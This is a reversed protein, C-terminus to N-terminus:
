RRSESRQSSGSPTSTMASADSLPAPLLVPSEVVVVKSRSHAGRLLQVRRKPVGCIRALFALLRANAKGDVPPANLRVRLEDGHPEGLADDSARPQVRLALHLREGDWHYWSM